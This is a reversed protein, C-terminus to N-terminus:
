RLISAQEKKRELLDTEHVEMGKGAGPDKMFSEDVLLGKGYTTNTCILGGAAGMWVCCFGGVRESHTTKKTFVVGQM